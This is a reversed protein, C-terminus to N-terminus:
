LYNTKKKICYRLSCALNDVILCYDYSEFFLYLIYLFKGDEM